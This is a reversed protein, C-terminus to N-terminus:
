FTLIGHGVRLHGSSDGLFSAVKYPCALGQLLESDSRQSSCVRKQLKVKQEKEMRRPLTGIKGPWWHTHLHPFASCPPSRLALQAIGPCCLSFTGEPPASGVLEVHWHKDPVSKNGIWNCNKQSCRTREQHIEPIDTLVEASCCQEGWSPRAGFETGDGQGNIVSLLRMGPLHWGWSPGPLALPAVPHCWRSWPLRSPPSTM